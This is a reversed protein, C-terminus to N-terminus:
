EEHCVDDVVVEWQAVQWNDAFIELSSNSALLLVFGDTPHSIMSSISPRYHYSAIPPIRFRCDYSVM